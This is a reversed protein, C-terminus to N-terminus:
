NLFSKLRDRIEVVPKDEDLNDTVWENLFRLLSYAEKKNITFVKPESPVAKEKEAKVENGRESVVGDEEDEIEDCEEIDDFDTENEIPESKQPAKEVEQIKKVENHSIKPNEKIIEQQKEESLKAVENATSISMEGSKVASEVEPIANKKINEIKGVQAPSIRLVDAINDRMRGKLPKGEDELAKFTRKIEEYEHLIDADSYKRQTANLMILDFQTEAATKAGDVYCPIKTSTLRKEDILKRIAALRRHGSKVEYLGTDSNHAVVLNHKLGEREIDDALLEIDSLEYFNNQSPAIESIDIMKISDAFSDSAASQMDKIIATDFQMKRAM